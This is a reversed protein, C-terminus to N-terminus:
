AGAVKHQQQQQSGVRSVKQHRPTQLSLHRRRNLSFEFAQAPGKKRQQHQEERNQQQQQVAQQQAAQQQQQQRRLLEVDVLILSYSVLSFHNVPFSEVNERSVAKWRPLQEATGPGCLSATLLLTPASDAPVARVPSFETM